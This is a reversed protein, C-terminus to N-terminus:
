TAVSAPAKDFTFWAWEKGPEPPWAHGRPFEDARRCEESTLHGGNEGISAVGVYGRETVYHFQLVRWLEDRLAADYGLVYGRDGATLRQWDPSAMIEARRRLLEDHSLRFHRVTAYADRIRTRVRERRNYETTAYRSSKPQTKM